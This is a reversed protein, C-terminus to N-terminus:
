EEWIRNKVARKKGGLTGSVYKMLMQLHHFGVLGGSSEVAIVLLNNFEPKEANFLPIANGFTFISSHHQRSESM